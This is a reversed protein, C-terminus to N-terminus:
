SGEEVYQQQSILTNHVVAVLSDGTPYGCAAFDFEYAGPTTGTPVTTPNNDYLTGTSELYLECKLKNVPIAVTM